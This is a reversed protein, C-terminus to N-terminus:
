LNQWSALTDRTICRPNARQYVRQGHAQRRGSLQALRTRERGPRVGIRVSQNSQKSPRTEGTIEPGMAAGDIVEAPESGTPHVEPNPLDMTM